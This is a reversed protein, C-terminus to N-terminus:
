YPSLLGVGKKACVSQAAVRLEDGVGGFVEAAEHHLRAPPQHWVGAAVVLLVATIILNLVVIILLLRKDLSVAEPTDHAVQAASLPRDPTGSLVVICESSYVNGLSM